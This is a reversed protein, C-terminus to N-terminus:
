QGGGEFKNSPTSVNRHRKGNLQFGEVFVIEVDIGSPISIVPQYQEARTIFYNALREGSNSIGQGIGKKAVDETTMSGQTTLGNSFNLPPSVKSALGTGIGGVLGALFSKAVVDGARSIVNGRVGSKGQGAVYGKVATEYVSEESKSCTMNVLKVYVKESSLDGSAAGTVLCGSLDAKQANGDYISSIAPGTIRLLVPRPDSQAAVGVSADVGSIITAKAYAGAPVYESSNFFESQDGASSSKELDLITTQISKPIAISGPNGNPNQANPPTSFPDQRNNIQAPSSAQKVSGFQSKLKEIEETQSQIIEGQADVTEAYKREVEALRTELNGKDSAYDKQFKDYDDLKAEADYLWRDEAKLGHNPDQLIIKNKSDALTKSLDTSPKKPSSSLFATIVGALSIVTIILLKKQKLKSIANEELM